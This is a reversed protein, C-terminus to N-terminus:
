IFIRPIVKTHQQIHRPCLLVSAVLVCGAWFLSVVGFGRVVVTVTTPESVLSLGATIVTRSWSCSFVMGPTLRSSRRRCTGPNLRNLLDELMTAFGVVWPTESRAVPEDPALLVNTSQSPM